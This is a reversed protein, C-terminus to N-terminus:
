KIVIKKGNVINLGKQLSNLRIGQLNYIAVRGASVESNVEAIGSGGAEISIPYLKNTTANSGYLIGVVTANAYDLASMDEQYVYPANNTTGNNIELTKEASDTITAVTKSSGKVAVNTLKVVRCKNATVNIEEVSSSTIAEYTGNATVEVGATNTEETQAIRAGVSQNSKKVYIVGNLVDNVNFTLGTYYFHAGGTADQIYYGQENVMGSTIIANTLTLKVLANNDANAFAALDAVATYEDAVENVRLATESNVPALTVTIADLYCVGSNLRVSEANGTWTQTEQNATTLTGGGKNATWSNQYTVAGTSQNVSKNGTSVIQVVAYGDPATVRMQGGTQSQYQLGRTGNLYYRTPITPASVFSLVVGDKEISKGTLDGAKQEAVTGGQGYPLEMNNNAFDFLVTSPQGGAEEIASASIPLLVWNTIYYILVGTIKSAKEPWTYDSTLVGMMDRAKFTNGSADTLTKIAGTGSISVDEFAILRAYNDQVGAETLLKVAGVLTTAAAEFTTADSATLVYEVFTGDMDVTADTSKTGVIYGNLATGATLEVGKIVTAGTADEVYYNSGKVGNVRANTLTLKAVKGDELANFEAITAAEVDWTAAEPRVTESNEAATTVVIKLMQRNGTGTRTFTVETANGTWSTGSLTGTSATFDFNGTKMTVEIKTLAKGEAASFKISGNAYVYLASIGDNAKMIRAPQTADGQVNTLTVEGVTLPNTLNGDAFNVGEGVPWNNPNNEFDFTFEEASATLPLALLATLVMLLTSIKKMLM